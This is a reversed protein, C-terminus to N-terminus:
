EAKVKAKVEAIHALGIHIAECIRPEGKRGRKVELGLRPSPDVSRRCPPFASTMLTTLKV